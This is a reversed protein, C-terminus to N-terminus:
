FCTVCKKVNYEMYNTGGRHAESSVKTKGEPFLSSAESNLSHQNGMEADTVLPAFHADMVAFSVMEGKLSM